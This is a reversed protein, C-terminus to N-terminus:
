RWVCMGENMFGHDSCYFVCYFFTQDFYLIDIEWRLFFSALLVSKGRGTNIYLLLLFFLLIFVLYYCLLVDSLM